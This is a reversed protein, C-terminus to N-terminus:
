EGIRLIRNFFSLSSGSAAAAWRGVINLTTISATTMSASTVGNVVTESGATGNGQYSIRAVLQMTINGSTPTATGTAVPVVYVDLRALTGPGSIAVPISNNLNITATTGGLSVGINFGTGAAGAVLGLARFHLPQPAYGANNGTTTANSTYTPVLTGAPVATTTAILAAPINYQFLSVEQNSNVVTQSSSSWLITPSGPAPFTQAFAAFPAAIMMAALLILAIRRMTLGGKGGHRRARPTATSTM